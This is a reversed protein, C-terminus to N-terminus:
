PLFIRIIGFLSRLQSLRESSKIPGSPISLNCFDCTKTTPNPPTPEKAASNMAREPTPRIVITSPSTTSGVFRLRCNGAKAVFWPTELAWIMASRRCAM